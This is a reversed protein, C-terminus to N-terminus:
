RKKEANSILTMEKAFFIWKSYQSLFNPCLFRTLESLFLFFKNDSGDKNWTLPLQRFRSVKVNEFGYVLQIEKLARRNFPKYHTFDNYFNKYVIEWDPTLTIIKGGPKLVRFSEEFVKEPHYFHEIVSKSYVYDFSNDEFPLKEKILDCLSFQIHPYQKKTYDSVDVAYCNIGRKSFGDIYEGRGCGIELFKDNQKINYKNSLHDALKQPFSTFPKDIKDYAISVYDKKM